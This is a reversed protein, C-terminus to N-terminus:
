MKSKRVGPMHINVRLNGPRVARFAASLGIKRYNCSVSMLNCMQSVMDNYSQKVMGWVNLHLM